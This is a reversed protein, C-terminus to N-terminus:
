RTANVSSDLFSEFDSKKLAEEYISKHIASIFALKRKNLIINTIEERVFNIPADNGKIRYDDFKMLYAFGSDPVELYSRNFQANDFNFKAVPLFATLEDKNYWISDSISYRVANETCFGRLKPYNDPTTNRMWSRVSDLQVRTDMRLMIYKVRSISQKLQFTEKHDQYYQAVEAANVVTDLKDNLLEKEYLYILLSERYDKMQENLVRQEEPLNDQAYRLLLNHRIWSDVYNKVMQISDEPRAAGRGVGELDSQYLFKDYVRAVPKEGEDPNSFFNCSGALALLIILINFQLVKM